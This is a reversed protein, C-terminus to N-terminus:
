LLARVLRGLAAADPQIPNSALVVDDLAGAVLVDVMAETLGLEALTGPMGLRAALSRVTKVAFLASQEETDGPSAGLAAGVEGLETRRAPLNFEMVSPLVVALAVGHATGLMASLTHGIAHALGLGTNAFALGALHAALLMQARAELDGGAEVAIPLWRHVVQVVELSLGHSLPNQNLAMLSELAHTLADMGTAATAPATLGATLAADLIIVKPAVSPNGIYFKRHAEHDEIVGFSNTESGTGATTPIAIVPLGPNAQERRYDLERIPVDNAAALSIGKACDISTGGGLAVVVARGFGRLARGGAAIDGSAPNPQLESYVAVELGAQNLQETVAGSLGGAVLGRDTVLFVRRCELAIVEQSLRAVSGVGFITRAGSGIALRQTHLM